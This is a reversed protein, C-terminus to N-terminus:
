EKERRIARLRTMVEDGYPTLTWYTLSDKVSRTKTSMTILGLSRFQIQITHFDTQNLSLSEIRKGPHNKLLEEAVQEAIYKDLGLQLGRTSIENIMLPAVSAFVEDWTASFTDTWTKRAYSQPNVVEYEYSAEFSDKGQALEESGKPASTRTRSLDSELEEVKRRLRLLEETANRDPLESARVWGVAPTTRMLQVLSRSVVSGLEEASAWQKCLRKQVENRFEKLKARGAESAETRETLIKGPDKHTFAIVPKGKELAYRYEMETYSIGDPGISGYRGGLILVYYDCDDIVRKILSWQDENAAPFLEMGCPICDLELLAHMVEQREKELDTFTSSVFVQFRKEL